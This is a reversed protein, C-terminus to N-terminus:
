WSGVILGSATDGCCVRFTGEWGRGQHQRVGRSLYWNELFYASSLRRQNLPSALRSAAGNPASISNRSKGAAAGGPVASASSSQRPTAAVENARSRASRVQFCESGGSRWVDDLILFNRREAHSMADTKRLPVLRKKHQQAARFHRM